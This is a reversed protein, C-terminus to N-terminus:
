RGKRDWALEEVLERSRWGDPTRVLRHLYYGGVDMHWMSSDPQAIQMPNMLYVRVQATDGDIRVEKQAVYHQMNSFMPLTQALWERVEDRSGKIGGTATYDITADETFVTDFRAWDLTDVARTYSTILDDIEIRDSITQLDLM